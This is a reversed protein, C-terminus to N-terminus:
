DASPYNQLTGGQHCLEMKINLKTVIQTIVSFHKITHSGLSIPFHYIM